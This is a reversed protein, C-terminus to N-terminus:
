FHCFSHGRCGAGGRRVHIGGAAHGVILLEPAVEALRQLLFTKEVLVHYRGGQERARVSARIEAVVSVKLPETRM